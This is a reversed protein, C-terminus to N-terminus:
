NSDCGHNHYGSGYVKVWIIPLKTFITWGLPAYCFKGQVQRGVM